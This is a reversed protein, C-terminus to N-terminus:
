RGERPALGRMLQGLMARLHVELAEDASARGSLWATLAGYYLVFITPVAAEPVVAADVQGAAQARALRAALRGFFAQLQADVDGRHEAPLFQVEKVFVRALDPAEGYMAFLPRFVRVLDELIAGDPPLADFGADVAEALRGHFLKIVLERKDRAYLFLTGAAVEARAAIERTTAAEYGRETFVAWAADAIRRWKEQKNRARLSM